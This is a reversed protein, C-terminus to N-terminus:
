KMASKRGLIIGLAIGIAICVGITIWLIITSTNANKTDQTPNMGDGGIYGTDTIYDNGIAINAGVDVAIKANAVTATAIFDATAVDATAMTDLVVDEM